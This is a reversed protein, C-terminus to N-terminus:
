NGKLEDHQRDAKLELDHLRECEECQEKESSDSTFGVGGCLGCHESRIWDDNNKPEEKIGFLNILKDPSLPNYFKSM